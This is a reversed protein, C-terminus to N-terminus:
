KSTSIEQIKALYQPFFHSHKNDNRSSNELKQGVTTLLKAVLEYKQEAQEKAEKPDLKEDEELTQAERLLKNLCIHM